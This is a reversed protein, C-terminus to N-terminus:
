TRPRGPVADRARLHARDITSSVGGGNGGGRRQDAHDAPRASRARLGLRKLRPWLWSGIAGGGYISPGELAASGGFGVTTVAALLKYWFPRTDIDGQHEHYSQIIEETSHRDPDRTLFQMILGTLGFGLLTVPIIAGHHALLFPLIAPWVGNLILLAIGTIVLGSAVGILPAVLLWKQIDRSYTASLDESVLASCKRILPNDFWRSNRISALFDM